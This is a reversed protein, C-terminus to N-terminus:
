IPRFGYENTILGATSASWEAVDTDDPGICCATEFAGVLAEAGSVIVSVETEGPHITGNLNLRRARESAFAVFSSGLRGHFRFKHTVSRTGGRGIPGSAYGEPNEDVTMEIGEVLWNMGFIDPDAINEGEAARVTGGQDTIPGTFAHESGDVLAAAKANIKAM